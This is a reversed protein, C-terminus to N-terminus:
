EYTRVTNVTDMDLDAAKDAPVVGYVKATDEDYVWGVGQAATDSVTASKEFPNVPMKKIYPGYDTGADGNVDTRSTLVNWDDDLQDMTPYTSHHQAHYLEIQSRIVQLSSLMSSSQASESANAFQPVVIAALIGLIVVVILIEVLTFGNARRPVRSAVNMDPMSANM